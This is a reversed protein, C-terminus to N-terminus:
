INRILNIIEAIKKKKKYGDTEVASRLDVGYPHLYDVAKKVNWIGLGGALFYPVSVKELYSWCFTEGNGGYGAKSYADFLLLDGPIKEAQLVSEENQVRIAKM